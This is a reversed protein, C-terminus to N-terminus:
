FPSRTTQVQALRRDRLSREAGLLHAIGIAEVAFAGAVIARRLSMEGDHGEARASLFGGCFADGAGVPDRAVVDLAAAEVFHGDTLRLIAGASGRKVGVLADSTGAINALAAHPALGPRLVALEKESPLFADVHGLIADLEARGLKAAQFGPDLTAVLGAAHAAAACAIMQDVANAGIHIGRAQWYATPIDTPRVPHLARFAGFGSRGPATRELHARWRDIDDPALLPGVIELAAMETAAAHLHDIRSGDAKHFFWEPEAYTDSEVRIGALDLRGGATKVLADHPYSAPVRGVVGVNDLFLSAGAAAHLANGGLTELHLTGNAEVICDVIVGGIAFARITM